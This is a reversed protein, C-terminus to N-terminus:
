SPPDGPRHRGRGARRARGRVQEVQGAVSVPDEPTALHSWTGALAGLGAGLLRRAAAAAHEPHLGAGAWAATSASTSGLARAAPDPARRAPARSCPRWRRWRATTPWWSTWGRRWPRRCSSRRSRAVAGPDARGAGRGAARAGRGPHGGAPGVGRRAPRRAGGRGHRHRAREAKVVVGMAAGAPLLSRLSRVNAALVGLDVELWALRPVSPCGPPRWGRRSPADRRPRRPPRIPM